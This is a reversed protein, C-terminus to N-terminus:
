QIWVFHKFDISEVFHFTCLGLQEVIMFRALLLRLYKIVNKYNMLRDSKKKAENWCVFQSEGGVKSKRGREKDRVYSVNMRLKM